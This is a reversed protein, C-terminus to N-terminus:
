RKDFDFRQIQVSAFPAINYTKHGGPWIRVSRFLLGSFVGAQHTSEDCGADMGFRTEKADAM